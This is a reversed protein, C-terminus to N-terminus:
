KSIYNKSIYHTGMGVYENLSPINPAEKDKLIKYAVRVVVTDANYPIFGKRILMVRGYQPYTAQYPRPLLLIGERLHGEGKKSSNDLISKSLHPPAVGNEM